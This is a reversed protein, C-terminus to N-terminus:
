KINWNDVQTGDVNLVTLTVPYAEEDQGSIVTGHKYESQYQLILKDIDIENTDDTVSSFDIITDLYEQLTSINIERYKSVTFTYLVGISQVNNKSVRENVLESIQKM